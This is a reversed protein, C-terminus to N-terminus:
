TGAKFGNQIARDFEATSFDGLNSLAPSLYAYTEDLSMGSKACDKAAMYVAMNRGGNPAGFMVLNKTFGSLGGTATGAVEFRSKGMFEPLTSKQEKPQGHEVLWAEVTELPVRDRVELLTQVKGKDQRFHNPYRSFRSPNSCAKDVVTVVKYIRKVLAKYAEQSPLAEQLAIIAHISKGGSFTLTSYPVGLSQLYPIQREVEMNDIELLINRFAVVNANMRCPVDPRHYVQYPDLNRTPHLPNICVFQYRDSTVQRAPVPQVRTDKEGKGFCTHEDADFLVKLFEKAEIM